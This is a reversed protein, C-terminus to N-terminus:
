GTGTDDGTDDGTDSSDAYQSLGHASLILEVDEGDAGEVDIDGWVHFDLHAFRPALDALVALPTRDEDTDEIVLDRISLYKLQPLLSSEALVVFHGAEDAEFEAESLDLSRLRPFRAADLAELQANSAVTGHVDHDSVVELSVLAPTSFDFLSGDAFVSGRTRLHTLADHELDDFLYAGELALNRLAPLSAWLAREVPKPVVPDNLYTEPDVRNGTSTTHLELLLDFDHGFHLAELRPWSRRSLAVAAREASHHYDTLHLELEGLLRTAPHSLLVDILAAEWQEADAPDYTWTHPLDALLREVLAGRRSATEAAPRFVATDVFGRSWTFQWSGDARLRDLGLDQEVRVYAAGPDATTGKAGGTDHLHELRVAEGRPDGAATLADAYTLWPGWRDTVPVAVSEAFSM